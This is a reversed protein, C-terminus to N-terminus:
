GDPRLRMDVGALILLQVLVSLLVLSRPPLVMHFGESGVVVM